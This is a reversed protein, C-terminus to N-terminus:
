YTRVASSWIRCGPIRMCSSRPFACTVPPCICLGILRHDSDHAQQQDVLTGTQSVHTQIQPESATCISHVYITIVPWCALIHTLM